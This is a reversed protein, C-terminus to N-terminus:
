VASIDSLNPSAASVTFIGGSYRTPSGTGVVRGVWRNRLYWPAGIAGLIVLVQRV